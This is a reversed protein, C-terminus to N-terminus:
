THGSGTATPATTPQPKLLKNFNIPGAIVVLEAPYLIYQGVLYKTCSRCTQFVFLFPIDLDINDIKSTEKEKSIRVQFLPPIVTVVFDFNAHKILM